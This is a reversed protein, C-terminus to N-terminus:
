LLELVGKNLGNKRIKFQLHNQGKMKAALIQSALTGEITVSDLKYKTKMELAVESRVRELCSCLSEDVYLRITKGM